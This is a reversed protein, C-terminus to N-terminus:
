RKKVSDLRKKVDEQATEPSVTTKDEITAEGDTAPLRAMLQAFNEQMMALQSKLAQIEAVSNDTQPAQNQVSAKGFATVLQTLLENTKAEGSNDLTAETPAKRNLMHYAFKDNMDLTAKGVGKNRRTLLEGETDAILTQAYKIAQNTGEIMSALTRIALDETKKDFGADLIRQEGAALYDGLEILSMPVEPMVVEEIAYVLEPPQNKLHELIRLGKEAYGLHLHVAQAFPTLIFTKLPAEIESDMELIEISNDTAKYAVPQLWAIRGRYIYSTSMPQVGMKGVFSIDHLPMWAYRDMIRDFYGNHDENRIVIKDIGKGVPQPPAQGFQALTNQKRTQAEM